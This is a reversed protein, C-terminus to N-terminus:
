TKCWLFQNWNRCKHWMFLTNLVCVQDLSLLDLLYKKMTSYCFDSERLSDKELLEQIKPTPSASLFTLLPSPNIHKAMKPTYINLDKVILKTPWSLNITIEYLECDKLINADDSKCEILIYLTRLSWTRFIGLWNNLSEFRVIVFCCYIVLSSLTQGM